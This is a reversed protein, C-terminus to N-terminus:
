TLHLTRFNTPRLHFQKLSLTEEGRLVKQGANKPAPRLKHLHDPLFNKARGKKLDYIALSFRSAPHSLPVLEPLLISKVCIHAMGSFLMPISNFLMARARDM